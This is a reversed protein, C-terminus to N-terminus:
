CGEIRLAQGSGWPMLRGHALVADPWATEVLLCTAPLPPLGPAWGMLAEVSVPNDWRAVLQWPLDGPEGPEARARARRCPTDILLAGGPELAAREDDDFRWQALLCEAPVAQWQLGPLHPAQALSRLAPWPLTLLARVGAAQWLGRAGSPALAPQATWQWANEAALGARALADLLDGALDLAVAAEAACPAAPMPIAETATMRLSAAGARFQWPATAQLTHPLSSM